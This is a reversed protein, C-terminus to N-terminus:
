RGAQPAPTQSVARNRRLYRMGIIGILAIAGLGVLLHAIQILWHLSGVLLTEQTLGFIPVILAYVIGVGGLRRMGRTFVALISFGLLSLAVVFGFLMHVSRLADMQALWILLGLTVAALGALGAIWQIIRVVM